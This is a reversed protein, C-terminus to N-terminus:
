IVLKKAALTCQTVQFGVLALHVKCKASYKWINVIIAKGAGSDKCARTMTQAHQRVQAASIVHKRAAGICKPKIDIVIGEITNALLGNGGLSHNSAHAITKAFIRNRKKRVVPRKVANTWRTSGGIQEAIVIAKEWRARTTKGAKSGEWAHTAIPVGNLLPVASTAPLRAANRRWMGM